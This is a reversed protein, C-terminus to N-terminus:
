GRTRDRAPDSIVGLIDLVGGIEEAKSIYDAVRRVEAAANAPCAFFSVHDRMVLDSPMDGIGAARDKSLGAREMLRAVGTGKSVHRLDCNIWAVTMSVRFPWGEAAFRRELGPMLERLRATDPHFLSISAAKGPQMVFGGPILEAEMWATAAAVARLDDATIAPDRHYTGDRPDYLWVGNEAICPITTNHLLRCLAEAFPQPRGSCLTLVPVDGASEARRNHAALRALAEADLPGASEPALCGDIDSIIVDFRRRLQAM